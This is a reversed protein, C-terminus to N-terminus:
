EASTAHAAAAAAGAAEIQAVEQKISTDLVCFRRKSKDRKLRRVFLAAAEVGDCAAVSRVVCRVIQSSIRRSSPVLHRPHQSTPPGAASGSGDAPLSEQQQHQQQQQQQKQQQLQPGQAMDGELQALLLLFLPQAQEHARFLPVYQALARSLLREDVSAHSLSMLARLRELLRAGEQCLRAAAPNTIPGGDLLRQVEESGFRSLMSQQLQDLLWLVHAADSNISTDIDARHQEALTALFHLQEDFSRERGRPASKSAATRAAAADAAALAQEVLRLVTSSTFHLHQQQQSGPTSSL